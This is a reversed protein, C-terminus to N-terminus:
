LLGIWEQATGQSDRVCNHCRGGAHALAAPCGASPEEPAPRGGLSLRARRARVMASCSYPGPRGAPSECTLQRLKAQHWGPARSAGLGHPCPVPGLRFADWARTDPPDRGSLQFRATFLRTTFLVAAGIARAPSRSGRGRTFPCTGRGRLLQARHNALRPRRGPPRPSFRCATVSDGQGM